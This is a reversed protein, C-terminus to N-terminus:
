IKPMLPPPMGTAMSGSLRPSPPGSPPPMAVLRPSGIKKVPHTPRISTHAIAHALISSGAKRLVVADVVRQINKEEWSKPCSPPLRLAAHEQKCAKKLQERSKSADSDNTSLDAAAPGARMKHHAADFLEKNSFVDLLRMPPMKVKGGGEGLLCELTVM